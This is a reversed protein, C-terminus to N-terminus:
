SKGQFQRVSAFTCVAGRQDINAKAVLEYVQKITVASFSVNLGVAKNNHIIHMIDRTIIRLKTSNSM